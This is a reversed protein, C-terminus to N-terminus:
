KTESCWSGFGLAWPPFIAKLAKMYQERKSTVDEDLPLAPASEPKVFSYILINVDYVAAL